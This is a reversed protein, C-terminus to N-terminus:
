LADNDDMFSPLVFEPEEKKSRTLFLVVAVVVLLFAAVVIVAVIAVASLLLPGFGTGATEAVSTFLGDASSKVLTVSEVNSQLTDLSATTHHYSTGSSDLPSSTSSATALPPLISALASSLPASLADYSPSEGQYPSNTLSSTEVPLCSGCVKRGQGCWSPLPCDWNNGSCM